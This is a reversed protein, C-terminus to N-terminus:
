AVLWHVGIIILAWLAISSGLTVLTSHLVPWREDGESESWDDARERSLATETSRTM